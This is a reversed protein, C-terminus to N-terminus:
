SRSMIISVNRISGQSVISVSQRNGRTVLDLNASFGVSDVVASIRGNHSHGQLTGSIGRSSENWTGLIQPGDSVVEISLDFKYSDSACKLTQQLKAGTGDVRYAARCRLREISGDSLAVKGSGTWSGSLGAFPAQQCHAPLVMIMWGAFAITATGVNKSIMTKM